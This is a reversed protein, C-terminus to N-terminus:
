IQLLSNLMDNITASMKASAQYARQYAIMQVAEQDISVGSVSTQENALTQQYATLGNSLSQTTSAAQATDSTLAQNMQGLTLGGQSDLPRDLFGALTIANTADNGIGVTSAAFKSADNLVASSIGMTSASSGSFFTNLGLAALTGSTDNGFSVQLNPSTASIQLQGTSSATASLGSIGNLQQALSTLTTDHSTLGALEIPISTTETKKTQTNYVMVDFTGSTPTSSLGASDLPQNVDSVLNSSSVSSYGSQGQGSSYIKNFEVALTQALQDLQTSFTGLIQDRSNVLGAMEGSNMQLQSNSGQFVVQSVLQGATSVPRTQLLQTQGGYVLYNNGVFVNVAGTSAQQTTINVLKSLQDLLQNRQDSLGNASNADNGGQIQSIQVNLSAIQQILGNAQTVDGQLRSDADSRMQSVQSSLTNFNQALAQGNLVAMKRVSTDEPQNVVNQISNFFATLSTTLNSSGLSGIASQLEQYTTVQTQASVQDSTANRLRQNLYQDVQQQVGTVQVGLGVLVGGLQETPSPTQVLVARSYGPTNANAVNEGVVQLGLQSAQLSSSAIQITGYLSM